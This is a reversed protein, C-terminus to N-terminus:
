GRRGMGSMLGRAQARMLRGGWRTYCWWGEDRVRDPALCVDPIRPTCGSEAWEFGPCLDSLEVGEVWEDCGGVNRVVSGTPPLCLTAVGLVEGAPAVRCSMGM